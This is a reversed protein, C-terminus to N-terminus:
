RVHNQPSPTGPMRSVVSIYGSIIGKKGGFPATFYARPISLTDHGAAEEWWQESAHHRGGQDQSESVCSQSQPWTSSKNM